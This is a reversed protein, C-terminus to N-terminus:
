VISEVILPAVAPPTETVAVSGEISELAETLGRGGRHHLTLVPAGARVQAGVPAHIEIGVGYDITEDLRSRGAGLAVAARGIAEARLDSVYGSAPSPVDHRDPALPLRSYDDIAGTDGGQNRVIHRFKELAAGSELARRAHEEGAAADSAIGGVVLMRGALALSLQRVDDPGKGKLVELCEITENANGVMRGLPHDMRTVCAETRVGASKGIAVLAKALRRSDDLTKM